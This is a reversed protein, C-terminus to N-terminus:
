GHEPYAAACDVPPIARPQIQDVEAAIQDYQRAVDMDGSDRRAEAAHIAFAHVSVKLAVIADNNTTVQGRLVNGRECGALLNARTERDRMSAEDKAQKSLVYSSAAGPMTGLALVIVIVKWLDVGRCWFESSTLETM